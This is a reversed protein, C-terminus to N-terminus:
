FAPARDLQAVPAHPFQLALSRACRTLWAFPAPGPGGRTLTYPLGLPSLGESFFPGSPAGERMAALDMRM